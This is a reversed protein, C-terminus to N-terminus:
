AGSIVEEVYRMYEEQTQFVKVAVLTNSQRNYVKAVIAPELTRKHIAIEPSIVVQDTVFTDLRTPLSAM